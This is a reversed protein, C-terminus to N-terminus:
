DGIRQLKTPEPIGPWIRGAIGDRLCLALVRRRGRVSLLGVVFWVIVVILVLAVRLVALAVVM